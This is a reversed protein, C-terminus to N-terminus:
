TIGIGLETDELIIVHHVVDIENLKCAYSRLSTYLVSGYESARLGGHVPYTRVPGNTLLFSFFLDKSWDVKFLTM